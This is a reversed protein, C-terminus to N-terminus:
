DVVAIIGEENAEKIVSRMKTEFIHREIARQLLDNLDPIPKM